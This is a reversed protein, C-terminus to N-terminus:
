IVLSLMAGIIAGGIPGGLVALPPIVAAAAAGLAAFAVMKGINIGGIRFGGHGGGGTAQTAQNGARPQDITVSAPVPAAANLPRAVVLHQTTM